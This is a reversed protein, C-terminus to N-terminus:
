RAENEVFRMLITAVEARTASGTPNLTTATNGTILGQANAWGMASRAWESVQAADTYGSLNGTNSVDYGKFQAYRYLIAAMQERTITDNPGFRGDGYGGVIGNAAAWAVANTYWQGAPVDTFSSSGAAPQNELRYLITVIMARTTTTNPSFQNNGVGAMMGNEYAYVVADYFWDSTRVDVFPLGAPQPEETTEVFTAEVTVRGSPMEFIYRTDSQREVDIRNGRSDTVVLTGLEYGTDPDVTITVTDGRDARTPSVRISGNDTDEVTVTYGSSSSGGGSSNGGTTSGGGGSTGPDSPPTVMPTLNLLSQDADAPVVTSDSALLQYEQTESKIAEPVSQTYSKEKILPVNYFAIQRAPTEYGSFETFTIDMAGNDTAVYKITYIDELGTIYKTEGEVSLGFEDSSKTVVDNEISGCLNGSMDYVYVNVPCDIQVNTSAWTILEWITDAITIDAADMALKVMKDFLFDAVENAADGWADDYWDKIKDEALSYLASSFAGVDTRTGQGLIGSVYNAPVLNEADLIEYDVTIWLAFNSEHLNYTHVKCNFQVVVLGYRPTAFEYVLPVTYTGASADPIYQGIVLDVISQSVREELTERPINSMVIVSLIEKELRDLAEGEIGFVKSMTYLDLSIAGDIKNLEAGAEATIEEIEEETLENNPYQATISCNSSNQLTEGGFGQGEVQASVRVTKETEGKPFDDAFESNDHSYDPNVAINASITTCENLSLTTTNEVTTKCDNVLFRDEYTGDSFVMFKEVSASGQESTGWTIEFDAHDLTIDGNWGPVNQAIATELMNTDVWPDVDYVNQVEVKATISTHDYGGRYTITSPEVTVIAELKTSVRELPMAYSIQGSSVVFVAKKGVADKLNEELTDKVYEDNQITFSEGDIILTLAGPDYATLTGIKTYYLEFPPDLPDDSEQGIEAKLLADGVFYYIVAQDKDAIESITALSEQDTMYNTHFDVGEINVTDTGNWDGATGVKETLVTYGALAGNITHYLIQLPEGAVIPGTQSDWPYEVGDITVTTETGATLSGLASNVPQLRFLQGKNVDSEDQACEALVYRNVLQAVGDSPLDADTVATYRIYSDDSFVATRSTEDWSTLYKVSTTRDDPTTTGDGPTTMEGNPGTSNYHITANLLADNRFSDIAIKSWKYESGAYYVDTLRDCNEFAYWDIENISEPLTINRLSHCGSFTNTEIKTIGQPIIISTLSSCDYFAYGAIM